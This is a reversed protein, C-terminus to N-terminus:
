FYLARFHQLIIKRVTKIFCVIFTPRFLSFSIKKFYFLAPHTAPVRSVVSLHIDSLVFQNSPPIARGRGRTKRERCVSHSSNLHRIRPFSFHRNFLLGGVGESVQVSM